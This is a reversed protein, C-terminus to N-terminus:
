GFLVEWDWTPHRERDMRRYETTLWEIVQESGVLPERQIDAVEVGREIQAFWWLRDIPTM